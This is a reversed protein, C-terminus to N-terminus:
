RMQRTATEVYVGTSGAAQVVMDFDSKVPGNLMIAVTGPKTALPLNFTYNQGQALTGAVQTCGM